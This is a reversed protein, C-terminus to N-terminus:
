EFEDSTKINYSNNLSHNYPTDILARIFKNKNNETSSHFNYYADNTIRYKKSRPKIPSYHNPFFPLHLSETMM